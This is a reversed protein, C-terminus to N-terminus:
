RVKLSPVMWRIRGLRRRASARPVPQSAMKCGIVSGRLTAGPSMSSRVTPPKLTAARWRTDTTVPVAARPLASPRSSCRALADTGDVAMYSNYLGCTDTSAVADLFHAYQGVTVDYKALQYVQAVSGHGTTGDDM